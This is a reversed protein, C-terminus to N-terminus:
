ATFGEVAAETAIFIPIALLMRVLVSFHRILANRIDATPVLEGAALALILVPVAILAWVLLIRRRIGLEGARIIGARRFLSYIPGGKVLSFSLGAEGRDQNM